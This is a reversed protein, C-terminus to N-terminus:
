YLKPESKNRKIESKLRKKTEVIYVIHGFSLVCRVMVDM